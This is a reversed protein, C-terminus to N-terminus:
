NSMSHWVSDAVWPYSVATVITLASETNKGPFFYDDWDDDDNVMM